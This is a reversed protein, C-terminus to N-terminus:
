WKYKESIIVSLSKFSDLKDLDLDDDEFIINFREEVEIIVAIIKVSDFGLDNTLSIDKSDEINIKRDGIKELIKILETSVNM